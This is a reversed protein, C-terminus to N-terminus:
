APPSGAVVQLRPLPAAPPEAGRAAALCADVADRLSTVYIDAGMQRRAAQDRLVPDDEPWLGALMAANPCRQRLRRVLPRLNAPSGAMDVYLICVMAADRADLAGIRGRSVAERSVTRAGIDHKDLLQVLMEAVAEDLLGRGAVCLM